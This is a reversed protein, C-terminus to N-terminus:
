IGVINEFKSILKNKELKKRVFNKNINGIEENRDINKYFKILKETLNNKINMDYSYEYDDPFFESIGGNKPFISPVGLLSAECLLTPQGEYLKTCTIVGNSSSILELVRKNDQYGLFNINDQKYIKMLDDRFPGDGVIKLQVDPLQADLFSKILEEVGKEASIRGAYILYKEENKSEQYASDVNIYNPYVNVIEKPIKLNELYEKHFETLVILNFQCSTIIKFFKIGYNIMAFSKFYSNPFYKNFIRRKNEIGCAPCFDNSDIHNKFFFSKTCSYRFNHLKIFVPIKYTNLLKFVGLSIKFWTNHIYIIDPSFSEINEKIIKNSQNNSLTLFSIFQKYPKEIFNNFKLVRLNYKSELLTIENDVAIDEGGKEKYENHLLLIKKM